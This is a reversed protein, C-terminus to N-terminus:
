IIAQLVRDFLLGVEVKKFNPKNISSLSRYNKVFNLLGKSRYEITGIGKLLEVLEVKAEVDNGSILDINEGLKKHIIGSLSIIPTVSNMIEHNLVRILKQWAIVEHGKLESRINQFSILKFEEQELKFIAGYISLHHLSNGINLKVLIKQGPELSKIQEPLHGDIRKLSNINSLHPLRLLQSAADNMLTIEGDPKYCILAVGIHDVITQLYLYHM